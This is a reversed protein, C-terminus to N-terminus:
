PVRWKLRKLRRSGPCGGETYNSGRSGPCLSNSRPDGSQLVQRCDRDLDPVGVKQAIRDPADAMQRALVVALM